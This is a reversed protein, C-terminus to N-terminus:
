AHLVTFWCYPEASVLFLASGVAGALVRYYGEMHLDDGEAVDVVTHGHLVMEARAIAATYCWIQAPNILSGVTNKRVRLEFDIITNAIVNNCRLWLQCNLFLRGTISSTFIYTAPNYEGYDDFIEKDLVVDVWSAHPPTQNNNAIAKAGKM